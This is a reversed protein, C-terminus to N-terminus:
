FMMKGTLGRSEYYVIPYSSVDVRVKQDYGVVKLKEILTTYKRHVHRLDM